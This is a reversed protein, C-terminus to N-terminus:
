YPQSIIMTSINWALMEIDRKILNFDNQDNDFQIQNLVINYLNSFRKKNITDLEKKNIRPYKMSNIKKDKLKRYRNAAHEAVLISLDEPLTYNKHKCKGCWCYMFGNEEFCEPKIIPKHLYEQFKNLLETYKM